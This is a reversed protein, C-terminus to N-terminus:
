HYYYYYYFYYHYYIIQHSMKVLPADGPFPPIVHSADVISLYMSRLFITPRAIETHVM